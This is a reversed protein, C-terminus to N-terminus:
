KVLSYTVLVIINRSAMIQPQYCHDSIINRVSCDILSLEYYDLMYKSISSSKTNERVLDERRVM